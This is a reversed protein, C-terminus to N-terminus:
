PRLLALARLFNGGLVKEVREATWGRDLMAQALRPYSDGSAFGKPPVIAGDYDSGVSVFDEGVTDIVHQMHAVIM